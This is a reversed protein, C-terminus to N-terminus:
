AALRHSSRTAHGLGDILPACAYLLVRDARRQAVPPRGGRRQAVPPRGGPGASPKCKMIIASTCMIFLYHFTIEGTLISRVGM